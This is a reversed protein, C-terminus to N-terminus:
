PVSDTSLMFTNTSLSGWVSGDGLSHKIGSIMKLYLEGSYLELWLSHTHLHQITTNPNLVVKVALTIDHHDTICM